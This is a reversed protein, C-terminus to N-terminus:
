TEPSVVIQALQSVPEPNLTPELQHANVISTRKRARKGTSKRAKKAIRAMEPEPEPGTELEPEPEPELELEPNPEPDPEPKGEDPLISKRKRGRKGKAKVVDKVARAARVAVIDKFSM